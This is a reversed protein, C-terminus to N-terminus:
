VCVGKVCECRSAAQWVCTCLCVGCPLLCVRNRMCCVCLAVCYLCVFVSVCVCVNAWDVYRASRTGGNYLEELSVEVSVQADPGKRRGGGGGGGFLMDALVCVPVCVYMFM